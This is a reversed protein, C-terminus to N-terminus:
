GQADIEKNGSVHPDPDAMWTPSRAANVRTANGAPLAYKKHRMASEDKRPILPRRAM